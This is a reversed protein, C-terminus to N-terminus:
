NLVGPSTCATDLLALVVFGAFIRAITNVFFPSGTVIGSQHMSQILDGPEAIRRRCRDPSGTVYDNVSRLPGLPANAHTAFSMDSRPGDAPSHRPRLEHRSRGEGWLDGRVSIQKVLANAVDCWKDNLCRIRHKREGSGPYPCMSVKIDWSEASPTRPQVRPRQHLSER